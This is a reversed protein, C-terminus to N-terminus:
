VPWRQKSRLIFSNRQCGIWKLTVISRLNITPTTTSHDTHDYWGRRLLEIRFETQPALHSISM